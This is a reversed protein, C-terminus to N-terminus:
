KVVITDGQKKLEEGASKLRAVAAEVYNEIESEPLGTREAVWNIAKERKATADWGAATGVMEAAKVMQEVITLTRTLDENSWRKKAYITAITVGGSLVVALISLLIQLVEQSM